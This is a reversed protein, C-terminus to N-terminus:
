VHARGIEASFDLGSVQDIPLRLEVNGALKVRYEGSSLSVATAQLLDGTTLGVQCAIRAAPANRTRYIVGYVKERSIPLEEGDVLFVIKEGLAGAVGPVFDLVDDKRVVLLDNKRERQLLTKWADDLTPTSEGLRISVFRNAPM